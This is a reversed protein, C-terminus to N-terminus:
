EHSTEDFDLPLIEPLEVVGAEVLVELVDAESLDNLEILESLTYTELISAYEIM